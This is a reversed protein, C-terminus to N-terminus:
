DVTEAQRLVSVLLRLNDLSTLPAAYWRPADQAAIVLTGQEIRSGAYQAWPLTQDGYHLGQASITFDASFALREGAALRREAHERQMATIIAELRLTLDNVNQYLSNLTITEEQRTILTFQLTSRRVLGGFYARQEGRQRIIAVDSYMIPVTGAGERYTFGREYVIVERNWFHAIVWGVGLTTLALVLVTIASALGAEVQWLVVTVVFWVVALVAGGYLLLRARNSPYHAVFAGLVPDAEFLPTELTTM